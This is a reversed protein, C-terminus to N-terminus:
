GERKPLPVACVLVVIGHLVGGAIKVLVATSVIEIVARSVGSALSGTGNLSGLAGPRGRDWRFASGGVVQVTPLPHRDPMAASSRRRAIM